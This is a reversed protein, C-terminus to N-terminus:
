KSIGYVAGIMLSGGVLTYITIPENLFLYSSIVSFVPVMFAFVSVSKAGLKSTAYLFVGTAFVTGLLSFYFLLLWFHVHHLSPTCFQIDRFYVSGSLLATGIYLYFAFVFPRLRHPEVSLSFLSWAIASGIFYLLGKSLILSLDLSWLHVLIMMGILGIVIWVVEKFHFPKKFFLACLICTFMPSLTCVLVGGIGAYGGQSLGRLSLWQQLFQLAVGTVVFLGDRMSIKLSCKTWILVPLCMVASLFYRWFILVHVPSTTTLMKSVSWNIGWFLMAVCMGFTLIFRSTVKM